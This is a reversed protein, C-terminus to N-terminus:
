KFTDLFIAVSVNELHGVSLRKAPWVSIINCIEKKKKKKRKKEEEYSDFILDLFNKKKINKKLLKKKFWHRM